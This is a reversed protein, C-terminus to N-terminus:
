RKGSAQDAATSRRERQLAAKPKRTSKVSVNRGLRAHIGVLKDISIGDLHGNLLRNLSARTIGLPVSLNVKRSSCIM